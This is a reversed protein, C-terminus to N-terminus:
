IRHFKKKTHKNPARGANQNPDTQKIKNLKVHKILQYSMQHTLTHEKIQM